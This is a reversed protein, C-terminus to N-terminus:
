GSTNRAVKPAVHRDAWTLGALSEAPQPSEFYSLLWAAVLTAMLSGPMVWTFSIPRDTWGLEPAYAIAFSAALGVLAAAVATFQGARRFFIGVFFLGGLAGTFCNFSRPMMEVINWQQTLRDLGIAAVTIAVGGVVTIWRAMRLSAHHHNTSTPLAAVASEAVQTRTEHRWRHHEVTVVTALSNIGSDISSMAAALLAAVIGGAVGPPLQEVVFRPFIMDAHRGISPDLGAPMQDPFTRYWYFIAMGVLLLLLNLGVGVLSAVIFSRKAQRANNTSFYRQVTMQNGTHTAIHWVFMHVAVTVMTARVFPDASFLPLRHTVTANLAAYWHGVHSHTKCAVYVVAAGAGGVLMAVQACDTWIVARLGGLMTYVTAVLGVTAIVIWLGVGTVTALARSSVLVVIGMWSVVLCLFLAVGLLRAWRGFRHDLYEYATTFRFRMLFPICVLLVFAMELPIALLKGLVHTAGSHWVEGPEALYTISSFLSAIVSVGVAFWPMRRGALFYEEESHQRRSSWGGLAIMALLYVVVILHDQWALTALVM